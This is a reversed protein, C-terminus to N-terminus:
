VPEFIGGGPQEDINLDRISRGGQMNLSMKQNKMNQKIQSEKPKSMSSSAGQTTYNSKGLSARLDAAGSSHSPIRSSVTFYFLAM